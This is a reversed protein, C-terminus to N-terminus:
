GTSEVVKGLTAVAVERKSISAGDMLADVIPGMLRSMYPRLTYGGQDTLWLLCNFVISTNLMGVTHFDVVLFAYM